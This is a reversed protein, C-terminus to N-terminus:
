TFGIREAGRRFQEVIDPAFRFAALADRVSYSPQQKHALAAFSRAEDVRGAIALCLTAIGLIHIHANPRAAARVAWEAAETLQ